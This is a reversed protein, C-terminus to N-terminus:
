LGAVKIIAKRYHQLRNQGLWEAMEEGLASRAKQTEFEADAELAQLTSTREQERKAQEIQASVLQDLARQASERTEESLSEDTAFTRM